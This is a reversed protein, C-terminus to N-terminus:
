REARTRPGPRWHLGAGYIAERRWEQLLFNNAERGGSAFFRWGPDPQFFLRGRYLRSAQDPQAEIAVAFFGLSLSRKQGLTWARETAVPM